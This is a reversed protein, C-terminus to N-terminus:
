RRDGHHDLRSREPVEQVDLAAPLRDREPEAPATAVQYLLPTFLHYGRRDLLLVDAATRNLTRACELGGFGAGVIVVRARPGGVIAHRM